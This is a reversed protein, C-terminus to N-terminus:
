QGNGKGGFIQEFLDGIGGKPQGQQAKDNVPKFEYKAMIPEIGIIMMFFRDCFQCHYSEYGTGDPNAGFQVLQFYQKGDEKKVESSETYALNCLPCNNMILKIVRRSKKEIVEVKPKVEEQQKATQHPMLRDEDYCCDQQTPRCDVQFSIDQGLEKDKYNVTSEYAELHTRLRGM